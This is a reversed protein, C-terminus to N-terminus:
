PEVIVTKLRDMLTEMEKCEKAPFGLAEMSDVTHTMFSTWDAESIGMGKHATKMDRGTYYTPGGTTASLYDIFLQKERALGDQGRNNWFRSIQGDKLLRPLLEGAFTVIGDYRGLREYFSKQDM